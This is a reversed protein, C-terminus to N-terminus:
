GVTYLQRHLVTIMTAISIKTRCIMGFGFYGLLQNKEQSIFCLEDDQKLDLKKM